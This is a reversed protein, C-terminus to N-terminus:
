ASTDALQRRRVAYVTAGGAALLFLGVRGLDFSDEGTRPIAGAGTGAAPVAEPTLSVGLVVAEGTPGVGSITITVPENGMTFQVAAVGADDAQDTANFGDGDSFTVTSGPAFGEGSVTVTEGPAPTTDSATASPPAGGYTQAGAPVALALVGAAALTITRKLM